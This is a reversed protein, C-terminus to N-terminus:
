VNLGKLGLDLETFAVGGSAPRMRLSWPGLLDQGLWVEDIAIDMPPFNAPDVAALPDKRESGEAGPVPAPVRVHGLDVKIPVAEDDPRLLTGAISSSALGLSWANGARRLDIGLNEIEQGFGKFRAIDLQARKLLSAASQGEGGEGHGALLTQWADLDLEPMRGRVYLGAGARLNAAGGGLVLEGGGNRWDGAPAQFTLAALDGHKIMYRRPEDGLTMRLRPDRRQGAAEGLPWRCA